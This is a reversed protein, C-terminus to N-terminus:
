SNMLEDFRDMLGQAIRHDIDYGSKGIYQSCIQIFKDIDEQDNERGTKERLLDIMVEAFKGCEIGDADYIKGYPRTRDGFIHRATM